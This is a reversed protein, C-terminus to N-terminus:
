DDEDDEDDRGGGRVTIREARVYGAAQPQGRVDVRRNMELRTCTGGRYDTESDARVERGDLTFVVDPCHGSLNAVRGKIEIPRGPRPDPDPRPGPGPAPDPGPGPGPGPGPPPEGPLAAQRVRVVHGAVTVTSERMDGPNPAMVLRVTGHGSGSTTGQIAIWSANSRASWGCGTLGQVQVSSTSGSGPSDVLMPAVDFRCPAGEQAIETRVSEVHLSGRRSGPAGNATVRYSVAGAGQGQSSDLIIWPADTSASWPCDREAAISLTGTGGASPFAPRSVSATVACKVTGTPATAQTSSSCSGGALGIAGVAGITIVLGFRQRV